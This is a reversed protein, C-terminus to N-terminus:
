GRFRAAGACFSDGLKQKLAEFRAPDEGLARMVEFHNAPDSREGHKLGNMKCNENGAASRPGHSRRANSRLADLLQSSLQPSKRISM